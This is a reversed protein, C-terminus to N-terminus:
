QGVIKDVIGLKIAEKPTVYNDSKSEMLKQIQTKKMKTEVELSSMLLDNMRKQEKIENMMDFINGVTGGSVSHIMIRGSAGISRHGKVGSALLLVGASMVKGLGITYVPCPLFKIVDYLSFMEDVSGGYTSIVLNIPNTNINALHMLQLIVQNTASETIDGSLMVLRSSDAISIQQMTQEFNNSVVSANAEVIQDTARGM